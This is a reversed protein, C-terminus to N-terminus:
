HSSENSLEANLFELTKRIWVLEEQNKVCPCVRIKEPQLYIQRLIDNIERRSKEKFCVNLKVDSYRLLDM